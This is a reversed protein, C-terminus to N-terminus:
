FRAARRDNHLAASSEFYTDMADLAKETLRVLVRRQDQPDHEREVLGQEALVGLWRLGTTPPAASGICASSVSVPKEEAQAIYLDLLIDWAPEGFLETDGFVSARKRRKAYSLRAMEAFAKRPDDRGPEPDPKSSEKLYPSASARENAPAKTQWVGSRLQEAIAVLQDAFPELDHAPVPDSREPQEVCTTSYAASQRPTPTRGAGGKRAAAKVAAPALTAFGRPRHTLARKPEDSPAGADSMADRSTDDFSSVSSSSLPDDM